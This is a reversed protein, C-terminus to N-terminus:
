TNVCLPRGTFDIFRTNARTALLRANRIRNKMIEAVRCRGIQPTCAHIGQCGHFNGSM